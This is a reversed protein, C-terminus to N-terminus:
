LIILNIKCNKLVWYIKFKSGLINWKWCSCRNRWRNCCALSSYLTFHCIVHPWTVSMIVRTDRAERSWSSNLILRIWRTRLSLFTGITDRLIKILKPQRLFRSLKTSLASNSTQNVITNTYKYKRNNKSSSILGVICWILAYPLVYMLNSVKSSPVM